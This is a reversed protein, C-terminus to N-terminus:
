KHHKWRKHTWLWFAPDRLITDEMLRTYRETIDFESTEAPNDTVLRFTTQYHGRDTKLVDAYVIAFGTQKAMREAGIMVATEQNLFNTWYGLSNGNPSQDSILGFIGQKGENRLRIVTRYIDNKAVNSGGFRTRIKHMLVDFAKNKLPKYVNYSNVADTYRLHMAYLSEYEWNGYHGLVVLVGGHKEALQVPYEPNEFVMRKLAEKESMELLHCTEQISDCFHKYFRRELMKLEVASKQPFSRQLNIRVTKRRYRFLHYLLPFVLCDSILYMVPLPLVAYARFLLALWGSSEYLKKKVQKKM